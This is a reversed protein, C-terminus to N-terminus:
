SGDVFKFSFAELREKAGPRDEPNCVFISKAPEPFYGRKPGLRQLDIMAAAVRLLRGQLRGDDAYWAKIVEPHAQRLTAALPVLALGYLVMSLPDGQTVGERSLLTYGTQGKRRLILEASHRYCNFAFRAGAAWRHRVAWMMARRGLENFGNMADVLLAGSPDAPQTRDPQAPPQTLLGEIPDTGPPEVPLPQKPPKPLIPPAKTVQRVAHIAAEIGAQLGACLNLNGAVDTAQHDLDDPPPLGPRHRSAERRSEQGLRGTPLGLARSIRGMATAQQCAM